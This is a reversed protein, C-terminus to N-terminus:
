SKEQASVEACHHLKTSAEDRVKMEKVRECENKWRKERERDVKSKEERKIVIENDKEHV